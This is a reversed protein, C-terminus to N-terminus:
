RITGDDNETMFQITQRLADNLHQRLIGLAEESRGAFSSELLEWHEQQSGSQFDLEKLYLILYRAVNNHLAAITDLLHSMNAARYLSAHFDWNLTAWDLPNASAEIRKLCSEAAIHDTTQLNPIAKELALTELVLRMSYIEEVEAISLSSVVAGRNNIFAVLGEAKLQNLAERVPIKSVGHQDALVDQKLPQGSPYTGTIISSRIDTAILESTTKVHNRM